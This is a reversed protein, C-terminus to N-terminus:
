ARLYVGEENTWLKGEALAPCVRECPEQDPIAIHIGALDCKSRIVRESKAGSSADVDAQTSSQSPTPLNVPQVVSKLRCIILARFLV